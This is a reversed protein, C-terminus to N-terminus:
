KSNRLYPIFEQVEEEAPNGRMAQVRPELLIDGEELERDSMLTAEFVPEHLKYLFLVGNYSIFDLLAKTVNFITVDTAMNEIDTVNEDDFIQFKGQTKGRTPRYFYAFHNTGKSRTSEVQIIVGLLSYRRNNININLYDSIPIEAQRASNGATSNSTRQLNILFYNNSEIIETQNILPYPNCDDRGDLINKSNNSIINNMMYKTHDRGSPTDEKYIVLNLIFETSFIESPKYRSIVGFPANCKSTISTNFYLLDKLVHYLKLQDIIRILSNYVEGGTGIDYECVDSAMFLQLTHAIDRRYYQKNYPDASYNTKQYKILAILLQTNEVIKAYISEDLRGTEKQYLDFLALDTQFKGDKDIQELRPLFGKISGLLLLVANVFCTNGVNPLGNKIRKDTQDLKSSLSERISGTYLPGAGMLNKLTIYKNKYKLYKSKYDM